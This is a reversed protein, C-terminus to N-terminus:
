MRTVCVLFSKHLGDPLQKLRGVGRHGGGQRHGRCLEAVEGAGGDELDPDPVIVHLLCLYVSWRGSVAEHCYNNIHKMQRYINGLM